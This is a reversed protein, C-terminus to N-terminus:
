SRFRRRRRALLAVALLGSTAALTSAAHGDPTAAYACGSSAKAGGGTAAPSGAGGTTTGSTGASASTGAAGPQGAAGTAITGAAGTTALTGAGGGAGGSGSVGGAGGATGAGADGAAAGADQPPAGADNGADGGVLDFQLFGYQLHDLELHFTMVQVGASLTVRAFDPYTKWKHYDTTGDLTITGTKNVGDGTSTGDNFWISFALKPDPSAWDSSVKYTGAQKVDVTVRVWDKHAYGIYYWSRETASPYPSGDVWTDPPQNVNTKCINPLDKETPRYDDGSIPEYGASNLRNHDAHYAVGSGGTDLNAFDVRGPIASPKGLYAGRTGPRSTPPPPDARWCSGWPPSCPGSRRSCAANVSSRRRGARPCPGGPRHLM